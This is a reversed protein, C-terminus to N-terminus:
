AGIAQPNSLALIAEATNPYVRAPVSYNLINRQGGSVETIGDYLSPLRAITIEGRRGIQSRAFERIEDNANFAVEFMSEDDEMLAILYMPDQDGGSLGREVLLVQKPDLDAFPWEIIGFELNSIRGDEGPTSRVLAEVMVTM